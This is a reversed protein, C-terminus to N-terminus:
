AKDLKSMHEFKSKIETLAEPTDADMMIGDHEVAIEVIADRRTELLSRAGRDGKLAMLDTFHEKGWLVPNGLKRGRAPAVVTRAENIDFAAIMRKMDDSRILPMDGLCVFCADFNKVANIGAALSSALGEAYDPNHVLKVSTDALASEIQARQHGTVVVIEDVGSAEIQAVTQALLPKGNLEALLKNSGMRTSRGAALVIAAIRPKIPVSITGERPQPRSAIEALLGGAGLARVDEGTVKLGACLRNLVLDFGNIKPSRACSPVGIVPVAGLQGLMLLNGPDVPMGLHLVKGKAAKLAAPVVDARDVIASAGFVLIPSLGQAKMAAIAEATVTVQHAVVSVAALKSGLRALRGAMAKESKIVLSPKTSLAQTIVLGVRQPTFPAVRVLKNRKLLALVKKLAGAPAAYPIIKVTALMQRATVVEYSKLTAVTIAEHVRNVKHLMVEDIIVLGSAQAHLNARGTFPAQTAAGLGCIAEAIVAAAQDEPVDLKTLKAALVEAIAQQKLQDLDDASLKRGKKLGGASHALIAGLAKETKLLGFKM